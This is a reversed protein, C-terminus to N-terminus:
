SVEKVPERHHHGDHEDLPEGCALYNVRNVVLNGKNQKLFGM